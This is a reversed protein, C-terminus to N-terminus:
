ANIAEVSVHKCEILAERGEIEPNSQCKLVKVRLYELDRWGLLDFDFFCIPRIDNDHEPSIWDVPHDWYGSPPIERNVMLPLKGDGEKYIRYESLYNANDDMPIVSITLDNRSLVLETFLEKCIEGFADASDWNANSRISFNWLHRAAERFLNIDETIDM